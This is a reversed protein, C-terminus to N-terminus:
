GFRRQNWWPSQKYKQYEHLQAIILGPVFMLGFIVKDLLVTPGVSLILFIKDVFSVPTRYDRISEEDPIFGEALAAQWSSFSILGYFQNSDGRELLERAIKLRGSNRHYVVGLLLPFDNKGESFTKADRNEMIRQVGYCQSKTEMISHLAPIPFICSLLFYALFLPISYLLSIFSVGAFVPFGGSLTSGMWLVAIFIGFAWADSFTWPAINSLPSYYNNSDLLSFALVCAFSSLLTLIIARLWPFSSQNDSNRMEM